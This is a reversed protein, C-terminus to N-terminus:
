SFYGVLPQQNTDWSMAEGGALFARSIINNAAVCSVEPIMICAPCAGGRHDCLTGSGCRLSRPDDLSLLVDQGHNRWMAALNGLDPTMGKRYIVFALDASFIREGFSGLDLGSFRSCAHILQHSLTHLLGYVFVPANRERRGSTESYAEAFRGFDQHLEILRGGLTKGNLGEVAASLGNDFLWRVVRAEDLRVYLAENSQRLAYIPRKRSDVRPFGCLRVPMTLGKQETTPSPSVRSYGFSYQLMKLNRVLKLDRIGLAEKRATIGDLYTRRVDTDGPPQLDRDPAELDVVPRIADNSVPADILEERLAQHELGLRIPDFKRAIHARTIAQRRLDAPAEPRTDIWGKTQAEERFADLKPKLLDSANSQGNAELTKIANLADLIRAALESSGPQNVAQLIQVISEDDQSSSPYDYLVLLAELLEEIKDEALLDIHRTTEYSIMQESQVYYLSNARYSVPLMNIERLTEGPEQAYRDLLWRLTNEDKQRLERREGCHCYFYWDRFKGSRGKHLKFECKQAADCRGPFQQTIKGNKTNIDKRYPSLPEVRGSWHAFVVDIQRWEHKGNIDATCPRIKKFAGEDYALEALTAEHVVSCNRCVLMLPDPVYAMRDPACFEFKSLEFSPRKERDLFVQEDLAQEPAVPPDQRMTARRHWNQIFELIGERVQNREAPRIQVDSRMVPVSRCAGAGGEFTFHKDPAYTTAMQTQSRQMVTKSM